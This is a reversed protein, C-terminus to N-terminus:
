LVSKEIAKIGPLEKGSLYAILAGGSTSIHSFNNPIKYKEITSTLHGGGLLSFTGKKSLKSIEKLIEITGYSYQPMESFGLPGKMFITKAKQIFEKFEDVTDHGVDWIKENAPFSLLSIERRKSSGNVNGVAFDSPLIIQREYKKYLEKIKPIISNYGKNKLWSNEYGLKGGQSVFILNALVGSALIKSRKDKLVNFIPLLDPVKTGGLLFVKRGKEEEKFKNLAKLEEQFNLGFYSKLYKPPLIISGQTRHSVSFADNIYLDFQSCLARYRNSKSKTNEEDNYSRVNKLLIAHGDKLSNVSKFALSGFLDNVYQINSKSYKSLLKAHQKLPLFDKDGKRGQHALIVVKAKRKLLFSLMKGSENFRPNDLIKSNVVPSNIDIRLLVRKGKIKLESIAKFNM